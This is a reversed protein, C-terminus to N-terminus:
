SGECRRLSDTGHLADPSFVTCECRWVILSSIYMKLDCIFFAIFGLSGDSHECGLCAFGGM